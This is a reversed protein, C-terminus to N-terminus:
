YPYPPFWYQTPFWYLCCNSVKLPPVLSSLCCHHVTYWFASYLSSVVSVVLLTSHQTHDGLGKYGQIFKGTMWLLAIFIAVRHLLADSFAFKIVCCHFIAFYSTISFQVCSYDHSSSHLFTFIYSWPIGGHVLSFMWVKLFCETFRQEPYFVFIAMISFHKFIAM